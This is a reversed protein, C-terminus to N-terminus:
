FNAPCAKAVGGKFWDRIAAFKPIIMRKDLNYEKMVSVCKQMMHM